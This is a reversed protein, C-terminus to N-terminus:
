ETFSISESLNKACLAHRLCTLGVSKETVRITIYSLLTFLIYLLSMFTFYVFDLYNHINNVLRSQTIDSPKIISLSDQYYCLHM